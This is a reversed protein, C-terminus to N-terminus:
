VFEACGFFYVTSLHRVLRTAQGEQASPSSGGLDGLGILRLLKEDEPSSAGAMGVQLVMPM